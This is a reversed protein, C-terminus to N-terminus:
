AKDQPNKRLSSPNEGCSRRYLRFFGAYDRFGSRAAAEGLNMGTQVYQRVASLRKEAIYRHVSINLEQRFRHSLTSVSVNLKRALPELKLEESLHADIEQLVQRTLPSLTENKQISEGHSLRLELLLQALVSRLLLVREEQSLRQEEAAAMLRGFLFRVAESPQPVVTVETMVARILERLSPTERFGLICRCYGEHKEVCFRHFHERPILVLSGPTLQLQIKESVLQADGALFLVIEDYDHFEEGLVSPKGKAYKLHCDHASIYHAFLGNM